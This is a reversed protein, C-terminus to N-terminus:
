LNHQQRRAQMGNRGLVVTQLILLLTETLAVEIQDHVIFRAIDEDGPRLNNAVNTTEEIGAVENLHFGGHHVGNSTTRSRLREHSVVVVEVHVQEHTDRRLQVQLHQDDTTQLTHILHTALESVFANVKGVIGLEGSALEVLGVSIAKVQHVGGLLKNRAQHLVDSTAILSGEVGLGALGVIDVPLRGPPTHLHDRGELLGSPLLERWTVLQVGLFSVLEELLHQLLGADFARWRHGVGTHEVLKHALEDFLGAHVRGEDSAVGLHHRWQGLVVTLVATETFSELGENALLLDDVGVGLQVVGEVLTETELLLSMLLVLTVVLGLDDVLVETSAQLVTQWWSTTPTHTNVSQDHEERVVVTDLFDKREREHLLVLSGM